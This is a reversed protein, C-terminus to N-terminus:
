SCFNNTGENTRLNTLISMVEGSMRTILDMASTPPFKALPALLKSWGNWVGQCCDGGIDNM